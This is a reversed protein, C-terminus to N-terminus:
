PCEPHVTYKYIYIYVTHIYIYVTHIYIYISHIYIYINVYKVIIALIYTPIINVKKIHLDTLIDSINDFSIQYINYEFTSM